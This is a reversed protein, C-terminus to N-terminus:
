GKGKSAARLADAESKRQKKIRKLHWDRESPSMDLVDQRTM